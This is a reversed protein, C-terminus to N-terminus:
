AISGAITAIAADFQQSDIGKGAASAILQTDMWSAVTTWPYANPAFVLLRRASPSMKEEWEAQLSLLDAPVGQPYATCRSREPHDLPHASADTMVAIIHRAKQGQLPKAFDVNMAMHLAELANEPEDGGGEAEIGAICSRFEPEDGEGDQLIFFESETFPEDDVYVDRFAIVKVRIKDALRNKAALASKIRTHLTLANAKANEMLNQMSGTADMVLVLDVLTQLGTKIGGTMVKQLDGLSKRVSQDAM